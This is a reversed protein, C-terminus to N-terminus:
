GVFVAKQTYLGVASAYYFSTDHGGAAQFVSNSVDASERRDSLVIVCPQNEGLQSDQESLM